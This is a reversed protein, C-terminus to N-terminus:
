GNSQGKKLAKLTGKKNITSYDPQSGITIPYKNNNSSSCKRKMWEWIKIEEVKEEPLNKGGDKNEFWKKNSNLWKNLQKSQSSNLTYEHKKRDKGHDFYENTDLRICTDFNGKTNKIHFHPIDGEAYHLIVNCSGLGKLSVNGVTDEDLVDVFEIEGVFVEEYDEYEEPPDLIADIDFKETEM